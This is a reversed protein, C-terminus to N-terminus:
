RLILKQGYIAFSEMHIGTNYVVMKAKVKEIHHLTYIFWADRMERSWMCVTM